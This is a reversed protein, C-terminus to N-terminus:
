KHFLFAQALDISGGWDENSISITLAVIPLTFAVYDGAEEQNDWVSLVAQSPLSIALLLTFVTLRLM